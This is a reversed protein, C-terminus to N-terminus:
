VDGNWPGIELDEYPNAGRWRAVAKGLGTLSDAYTHGVHDDDHGKERTCVFSQWRDQCAHHQGRRHWASIEPVDQEPFREGQTRPTPTPAM